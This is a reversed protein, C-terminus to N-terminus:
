VNFFIKRKYLYYATLNWLFTNWLALLLLVFHTNMAGIKWHWPFAQHFVEHGFYMIIANMGPYIFPAGSWVGKIDILYYCITLLIFALSTTVFVYSLSWLNKNIPIIGDNKSFGCLAGGLLGLIVAWILWRKIRSKSETYIIIINGCQLGIFAHFITLLCGFLGEPDFPLETNYVSKATPHQYLHKEGLILRDIYGAAGGTCNYNKLMEHVGGPGLYGSPCGPVHLLFSIGLHLIVIGIMILWHKLLLLIDFIEKAIPNQPVMTITKTLYLHISSVVLYAIAFRQLVGFIRLQSYHPGGQSNLILGLFFLKLSRVFINWLIKKKQINKNIQSKISIPICVGMIFLFWPFVLDAIHLGNWPAHEIWWYRGGGTNVFIMLSIAIGRFTDLSKLRKKVIKQQEEFAKENDLSQSSSPSLHKPSDNDNQRTRKLQSRKRYFYKGLIGVIIIACIILFVSLFPLYISVPDKKTVFDCGNDRDIKLDYVGFEGLKPEFECFATVNNFDYDGIDQDFIRWSVKRETDVNVILPKKSYTLKQLKTYPCKDCEESLSFLYYNHPQKITVNVYAHDVRLKWLNLGNFYQETYEFM